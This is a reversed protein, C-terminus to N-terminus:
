EMHEKPTLISVDIIANRIIVSNETEGSEDDTYWSCVIIYLPHTEAVQGYVHFLTPSTANPGVVHDLITLDM